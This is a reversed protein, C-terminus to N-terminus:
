EYSVIRHVTSQSVGYIAAIEAQPRKMVRYQHKISQRDAKPIRPKRIVLGMRRRQRYSLKRSM